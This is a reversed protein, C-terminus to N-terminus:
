ARSKASSTSTDPRAVSTAPLRRWETMLRYGGLLSVRMRAMFAVRASAGPDNCKRDNHSLLRSVLEALMQRAPGVSDWAVILSAYSALLSSLLRSKISFGSAKEKVSELSMALAEVKAINAVMYDYDSKEYLYDNEYMRGVM